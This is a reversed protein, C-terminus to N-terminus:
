CVMNAAYFDPAVNQILTTAREVEEALGQVNADWRRLESDTRAGQVDQNEGSSAGAEVFFIVGDLQDIYASLRGQEIMQAAYQEAREADIGLLTGLQQIGINRYLKSAGLLNHELVARDLVTTGDSTRALQHEPLKSAFASVEDPTLVRDLFIKELISFSEVQSAREDKYLKALARSRQPGAPALVACSIAASLSQLRDDEDVMPDFSVTHYANSADLFQRQADLIRAQSLRFQLLLVPDQVNHQINKVRNIATSASTPDTLSPHTNRRIPRSFGM